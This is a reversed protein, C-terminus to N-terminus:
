FFVLLLGLVVFAFWMLLSWKGRWTQLFQERATPKIDHLFRELFAPEDHELSQVELALGFWLGMILGAGLSSETSTIVFVGAVFLSLIFFMSRTVPQSQYWKWANTSDLRLAVIGAILGVVFLAAIQWDNQLWLQELSM